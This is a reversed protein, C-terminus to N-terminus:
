RSLVSKEKSGARTRTNACVNTGRGGREGHSVNGGEATAVITEGGIFDGDRVTILLFGILWVELDNDNRTVDRDKYMGGAPLRRRAGARRSPPRPRLLFAFFLSPAM